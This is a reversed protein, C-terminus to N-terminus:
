RDTRKPRQRADAFPPTIESERETLLNFDAIPRRSATRDVAKRRWEEMDLVYTGWIGYRAAVAHKQASFYRDHSPWPTALRAWGVLLMEYGLDKRGAQCHGAPVGDDHIETIRCTVSSSGVLRKLWAKSLPGCPVPPPSKIRSRDTWTPDFAWQPVDCADIEALRVRREAHPFWLTRGDIVAIRGRIQQPVAPATAAPATPAPSGARSREQVDAAFAPFSVLALTIISLSLKM